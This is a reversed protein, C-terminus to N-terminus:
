ILSKIKNFRKEGYYVRLIAEIESNNSSKKDGYAWINIKKATCLAKINHPNFIFMPSLRFIQNKQLATIPKLEPRQFFLNPEDNWIIIMDPNWILLTEPNINPQDIPSQCVNEVGAFELCTNMMGSTGTTSFIRGYAWSFYVRAKAPSLSNTLALEDLGKEFFNLLEQGRETKGLLISLDKVEKVIDAHTNGAVAYVNLGLSRFTQIMNTENSSIVILDPSLSLISEANLGNKISPTAM